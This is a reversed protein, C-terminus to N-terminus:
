ARLVVKVPTLRLICRVDDPGDNGYPGGTYAQSLREILAGQPDPEITVIGRVEVYSYPAGAPFLIATARPDGILNQHKRRGELTSILVDDGDRAAWVVSLHPQGDPLVTALTVFEPADFWAKAQDPLTESM